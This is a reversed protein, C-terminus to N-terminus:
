FDVTDPNKAEESFDKLYCLRTVDEEQLSFNFVDINEKMRVYNSSKPIPLYGMQLSWRMCIQAPTKDYKSCLDQLFPHNLSKGSGLPSYAVTLMNYKRSYSVTHEQIVGPCLFIQNVTPHVKVSEMLAEIHHPMFNSIGLARIKGQGYFEEFAKWTEANKKKWSGRFCLPNPWHILYLDVYDMQLNALSRNFAEITNDYGHDPNHLKTTIFFDKRSIGSEIVAKGVAEENEYGSATDIHRYGCDIADKLVSVTELSNDLRWTGFGICPIKVGNSLVYSDQISKFHM